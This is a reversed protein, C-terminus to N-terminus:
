LLFDCVFLCFIIVILSGCSVAFSLSQFVVVRTPSVEPGGVRTTTIRDNDKMTELPEKSTMLLKTKDANETGQRESEEAGKYALHSKM